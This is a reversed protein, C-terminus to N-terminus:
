RCNTHAMFVIKQYFYYLFACGSPTKATLIGSEHPNRELLLFFGLLDPRLVIWM